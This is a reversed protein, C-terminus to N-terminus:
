RARGASRQGRAGARDDTTAGKPSVQCAGAGAGFSAAARAAPRSLVEAYTRRTGTQGPRTFTDLFATVAAEFTVAKSRPCLRHV